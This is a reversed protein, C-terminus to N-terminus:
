ESLSTLYSIQLGVQNADSFKAFGFKANLVIGFIILAIILFNSNCLRVLIYCSGWLEHAKVIGFLDLHAYFQGLVYNERKEVMIMDRAQWTENVINVLPSESIKIMRKIETQVRMFKVIYHWCCYFFLAVIILYIWSLYVILIFTTLFTVIGRYFYGLVYNFDYDLKGM